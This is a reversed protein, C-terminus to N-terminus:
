VYIRVNHKLLRGFAELIGGDLDQYFVEDFLNQVLPDLDAVCAHETSALRHLESASQLGSPRSVLAHEALLCSSQWAHPRCVPKCCAQQLGQKRGQACSHPCSRRPLHM